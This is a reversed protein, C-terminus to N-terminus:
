RLRKTLNKSIVGQPQRSAPKLLQIKMASISGPGRQLSAQGGFDEAHAVSTACAVRGLARRQSLRHVLACGCVWPVPVVALISGPGKEPCNAGLHQNPPISWGKQRTLPSVSACLWPELCCTPPPVSGLGACLVTATESWGSYCLNRLRRHPLPCLGMIKVAPQPWSDETKVRRYFLRMGLGMRGVWWARLHHPSAGVSGVRGLGGGGMVLASGSSPSKLLVTLELLGSGGCLSLDQKGPKATKLVCWFSCSLM